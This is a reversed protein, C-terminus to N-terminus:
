KNVFKKGNKIVLGKYSSDVRQGKLNYIAGNFRSDAKMANISTPVSGNVSVISGGTALEPTVVDNKVYKQLKGEVVVEDGVKVINEDTIKAGEYGKCRYVTLGTTATKDDAIVFTANGFSTSIETISIVYGKVKYDETTKAGNDLANIIELAKAVNIEETAPEPTDSGENKTKGNLSYIYAKKNATELTGNYNTVKGCVIVEDGVAIQLNGEEWAKNELSYVGYVVFEKATTGDDSINFTATGYQASFTYKISSIKGKIYYDETSTQGSELKGTVVIADAVTYPSELTGKGTLTEDDGGGPTPEDSVENSIAQVRWHGSGTPRTFVVSAADGTWIGTEVDYTGTSVVDATAPRYSSGDAFTIQLKTLNGSKATITMTGDGYVRIGTGANYYKGDNDGGAFTVTFDGADFPNTYQVGNELGLDAFTIKSAVAQGMGVMALVALLSYRLIKNM